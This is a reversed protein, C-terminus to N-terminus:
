LVIVDDFQLLDDACAVALVDVEDELEHLGVQM